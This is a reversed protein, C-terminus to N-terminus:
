AGVTRRIKDALDNIQKEVWMRELTSDSFNLMLFENRDLLVKELIRLRRFYPISIGVMTRQSPFARELSSREIIATDESYVGNQRLTSASPYRNNAMSIIAVHYLVKSMPSAIDQDHYRLM